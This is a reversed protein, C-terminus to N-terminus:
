PGVGSPAPPQVNKNLLRVTNLVCDMSEEWRNEPDQGHSANFGYTLMKRADLIELELEHTLDGGTGRSQM